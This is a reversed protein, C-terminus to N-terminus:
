YNLLQMWDPVDIADMRLFSFLAPLQDHVRLVFKKDNQQIILCFPFGWKYRVGKLKLDELLPKMAKRMLLSKKALDPLLTIKSDGEKFPGKEWSRQM